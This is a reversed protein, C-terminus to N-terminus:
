CRATASTARTSSTPSRKHGRGRTHESAACCTRPCRCCTLETCSVRMTSALRIVLLGACLPSLLLRRRPAARAARSPVASSGACVERQYVERDGGCREELYEADSFEAFLLAQGTAESPSSQPPLEGGAGLETSEYRAVVFRLRGERELLAPLEDLPIEFACGIIHDAASTRATATVLRRDAALGRRINIISVLNFVRCFGAVRVHRFRSAQPTTSLASEKDVLSAFGLVCIRKGDTSLAASLGHQRVLRAPESESASAM